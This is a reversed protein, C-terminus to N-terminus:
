DEEIPPATTVNAHGKLQRAKSVTSWLLSERRRSPHNPQRQHEWRRQHKCKGQTIFETQWCWLILRPVPPKPHPIVISDNRQGRRKVKIGCQNFCQQSVWRQVVLLWESSRGSRIAKLLEAHVTMSPMWNAEVSSRWVEEYQSLGAIM